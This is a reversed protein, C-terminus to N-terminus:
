VYVPMGASLSLERNLILRLTRLTIPRDLNPPVKHYNIPEPALYLDYFYSTFPVVRDEVDGSPLILRIVQM